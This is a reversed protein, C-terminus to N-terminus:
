SSRTTIPLELVATTGDGSTLTLSGGSREAFVRALFLGLGLGRGAEKTTYFPEGARRLVAGTMGHGHDRVELRLTESGPPAEATLAVTRHDPTADFANNVLSLLAQTLGARPVTVAPVAGVRVELRSGRDDPLRARLENLIDSVDVTEAQDSAVGGARGSMQDLIAQCRDVETRILRTDDAFEPPAGGTQASRELERATLAITALPTSLEHAAGAALTTLAVLRDTRAARLRMAELEEERRALANSAQVAFYAMLEAMATLSVWLTFLHTPVDDLGHHGAALEITHWYLLVGYGAASVTAVIAAPVTGVTLAALTVLVVYVITFPNFPGGTLELLGTLLLIEIVLGLTVASGPLARGRGLWYAAAAHSAASVALLPALRYLPLELAPFALGTLVILIEVAATTWRLRILWPLTALATAALYWPPPVTSREVRM